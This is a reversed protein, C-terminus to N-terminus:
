PKGMHSYTMTLILNRFGMQSLLHPKTKPSPFTHALAQWDGEISFDMGRDLIWVGLVFFFAHIPVTINICM